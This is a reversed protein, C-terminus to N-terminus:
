STPLIQSKWTLEVSIPWPAQQKMPWWINPHCLNPSCSHFTQTKFCAVSHDLLQVKKNKFLETL